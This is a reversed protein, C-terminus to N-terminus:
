HSTVTIQGNEGSTTRDVNRRHHRSHTGFRLFRFTEGFVDFRAVAHHHRRVETDANEVSSFSSFRVNSSSSCLLSVDVSAISKRIRTEVSSHRTLFSEVATQGDSPVARAFHRRASRSRGTQDNEVVKAVSQGFTETRVAFSLVDSVFRRLEDDFRNRM